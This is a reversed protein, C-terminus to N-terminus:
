REGEEERVARKPWGWVCVEGGGDCWQWWRGGGGGEGTRKEEWKKKSQKEGNGMQRQGQGTHKGCHGAAAPTGGGRQGTCEGDTTEVRTGVEGRWRGKERESV